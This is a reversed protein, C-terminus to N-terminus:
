PKLQRTMGAWDAEIMRLADYNTLDLHLPTVSVFGEAIAHIDTEEGGRFVPTGGGLWYHVRGRPDRVEQIADDYTRKGQGTFRIGKLEDWPINPANVNLLTDPPLGRELVHAAVIAAVRGTDAYHLHSTGDISVAISPIGILTGEVAASVTGSYTIDDGLNGGRNIGSAILVPRRQLIKKVGIAVCDTPTGNIAYVGERLEECFLPRHMTLAHGVASRERDPAIVVVEVDGGRLTKMAKALAFLGPAHVGDDNTVLILPPLESM